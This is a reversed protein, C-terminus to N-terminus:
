IRKIIKAPVGAIICNREEFGRTVGAGAAVVVNSGLISAGPCLMANTCIWVNNGIETRETKHARIGEKFKNLDYGSSLINTGESLTVNDGISVGGRANIRVYNNMRLNKGISLREPFSIDIDTGYIKVGEGVNAIKKLLKKERYKHIFTNLM